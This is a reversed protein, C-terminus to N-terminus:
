SPFCNSEDTVSSSTSTRNIKSVSKVNSKDTSQKENSNHSRKSGAHTSSKKGKKDGAVPRDTANPPGKDAVPSKKFLSKERDTVPSKKNDALIQSEKADAAPSKKGFLSNNNEVVPSKPGGAAIPPRKDAKKFLSREIETVPSKKSDASEKSDPVPSKTGFSSKKNEVDLSKKGLLSKTDGAVPRDAAIPPGKDAKKFLSKERETVPSKKSDTSEKSGAVPSKKVFNLLSKKNEM